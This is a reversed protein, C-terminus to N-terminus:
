LDHLAFLLQCQSLLITDNAWIHTHPILVMVDDFAALTYCKQRYKSATRLWAQQGPRWHVLARDKGKLVCKERKLEIWMPVGDPTVCYIDPM